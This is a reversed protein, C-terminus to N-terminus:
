AWITRHEILFMSKTGFLIHCQIRKPALIHTGIDYNDNLIYVRLNISFFEYMGMLTSGTQLYFDVWYPIRFLLILKRQKSYNTIIWHLNTEYKTVEIIWQKPEAPWHHTAWCSFGHPSPLGGIGVISPEMHHHVSLDANRTVSVM